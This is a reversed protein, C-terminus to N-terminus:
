PSANANNITNIHRHTYAKANGNGMEIIMDKIQTKKESIELCFRHSTLLCHTFLIVSFRVSLSIM